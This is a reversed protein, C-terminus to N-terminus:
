TTWRRLIHLNHFLKWKWKKWIRKFMWIIWIGIKIWEMLPAATPSIGDYTYLQCFKLFFFVFEIVFHCRDINWIRCLIYPCKNLPAIKQDLPNSWNVMQRVISRDLDVVVVCITTDLWQKITKWQCSHLSRRNTWRDIKM